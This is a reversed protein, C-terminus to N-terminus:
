IKGCTQLCKQPDKQSYSSIMLSRQSPVVTPPLHSPHKRSTFINITIVTYVGEYLVCWGNGSKARHFFQCIMDAIKDRNDKDTVKAKCGMEKDYLFCDTVKYKQKSRRDLQSRVFRFGVNMDLKSCMVQMNPELQVTIPANFLAIHNEHM